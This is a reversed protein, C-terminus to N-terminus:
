NAAAGKTDQEALERARARFEDHKQVVHERAARFTGAKLISFAEARCGELEEDTCFDKLSELLSALREEPTKQAIHSALDLALAEMSQLDDNALCIEISQRVEGDETAELLARLRQRVEDRERRLREEAQAKAQFERHRLLYADHASQAIAAIDGTLFQRFRLTQERARCYEVCTKYMRLLTALFYLVALLAATLVLVLMRNIANHTKALEARLDLLNVSIDASVMDAPNRPFRQTSSAPIDGSFNLKTRWHFLSIYQPTLTTLNRQLPLGKISSTLIRGFNRGLTPSITLAKEDSQRAVVGYVTLCAARATESYTLVYVSDEATPTAESNVAGCNLSDDRAVLIPYEDRLANAMQSATVTAFAQMYAPRGSLADDLVPVIRFIACVTAIVTAGIAWALQRHKKTQM